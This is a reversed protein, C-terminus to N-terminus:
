LCLCKDGIHLLQFIIERCIFHTKQTFGCKKHQMFFQLLLDLGTSSRVLKTADVGGSHLILWGPLDGADGGVDEVFHIIIHVVHGVGDGVILSNKFLEHCGVGFLGRGDGCM